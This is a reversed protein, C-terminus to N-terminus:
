NERKKKPLEKRKKSSEKRTTKHSEKTNHKSEKKKVKKTDLNKNTIVMPNKQSMKYIYCDINLQHNSVNLCIIFSDFKFASFTMKHKKKIKHIGQSIKISM